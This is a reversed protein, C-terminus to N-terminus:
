YWILFKGSYMYKIDSGFKFTRTNFVNTTRTTREQQQKYNCVIYTQKAQANIGSNDILYNFSWPWFSIFRQGTNNLAM